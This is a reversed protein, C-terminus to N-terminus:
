RREIVLVSDIVRGKIGYGFHVVKGMYKKGSSLLIVIDDGEKIPDKNFEAENFVATGTIPKGALFESDAAKDILQYSNV